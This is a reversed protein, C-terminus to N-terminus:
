SKEETRDPGADVDPAEAARVIFVSQRPLPELREAIHWGRERAWGDIQEVTIGAGATAALMTLSLTLEHRAGALVAPREAAPVAGPRPYDAVVVVGDPAATEIARHVLARARDAPEARLVHGLIVVDASAPLEVDLYDAAVVTLRDSVADSMRRTAAVVGPLDVAVAVAGADRELLTASWAASGAGLDVVTPASPLTGADSLHAWVGTAVARQTPGTAEVLPALFREPEANVQTASVGARVTDALHTWAEQPGPSLRVLERMQAPAGPALFREAVPALRYGEGDVALLGVSVLLDALLAVHDGDAAGVRSAVTSAGVGPEADIADILGLDLAAVLAHYAALGNIVDWIPAPSVPAPGVPATTM